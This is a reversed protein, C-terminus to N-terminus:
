RKGGPPAKKFKKRRDSLNKNRVLRVILDSVMRSVIGGTFLQVIYLYKAAFGPVVLFRKKEIARVIARAVPEAKLLGAMNKIARAEPPITKAEEYILPTDVEPPCILSISIGYQKLEGRLCETFGNLAFKSTGYATYGFMPILGAVSSINVIHGDRGKMCPLLATIVNRAGYLNTKIVADFSKLPINEFYDAAGIGASNILIDPIGFKRISNKIGRQVNKDDTVDMQHSGIIQKEMLTHKKIEGCASDLASKRRGFIIVHVGKGALEKAAALGIGSSGGTIYAIKNKLNKM